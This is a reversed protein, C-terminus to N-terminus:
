AASWIFLGFALAILVGSATGLAMMVARHLKDSPDPNRVSAAIDDHHAFDRPAM